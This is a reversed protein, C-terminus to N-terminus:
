QIILFNFRTFFNVMWFNPLWGFVHFRPNLVPSWTFLQPFIQTRADLFFWFRNCNYPMESKKFNSRLSCNPPRTWPLLGRRSFFQLNSVEQFSDLRYHTQFTQFQIDFYFFFFVNEWCKWVKLIGASVFFSIKELHASSKVYFVKTQFTASLIQTLAKPSLSNSYRSSEICKFSRPVNPIDSIQVM